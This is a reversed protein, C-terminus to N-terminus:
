EEETAETTAEEGGNPQSVEVLSHPAWITGHTVKVGPRMAQQRRMQKEMRNRNQTMQWQRMRHEHSGIMRARKNLEEELMSIRLANSCDLPLPPTVVPLVLGDAGTYMWMAASTCLSDPEAAATAAGGNLTIKIPTWTTPPEDIGPTQNNSSVNFESSSEGSVLQSLKEDAEDASAVLDTTQQSSTHGSAGNKSGNEDTGEDEDNGEDDEEEEDGTDELGYLEPMRLWGGGVGGGVMQELYRKRDLFSLLEDEHEQQEEDNAGREAGDLQIRPSNSKNAWELSDAEEEEEEEQEEEEFDECQEAHEAESGELLSVARGAHGDTQVLASLAMRFSCVGHEPQFVGEEAQAVIRQARFIWERPIPVASGDGEAASNEEGQAGDADGVMAPGGRERAQEETDEPGDTPTASNTGEEDGPPAGWATPSSQLNSRHGALREPTNVKAAQHAPAKEPSSEQEEGEEASDGGAGAGIQDDGDDELASAAATTMAAQAEMMRNNAAFKQLCRMACAHEEALAEYKGDINQCLQQLQAVEEDRASVTTELGGITATLKALVANMHRWWDSETAEPPPPADSSASAAAPRVLETISDHQQVLASNHLRLAAVLRQLRDCDAELSTNRAQLAKQEELLAAIRGRNEASSQNGQGDLRGAGAGGPNSRVRQGRVEPLSQSRGVAAGANPGGGASRRKRGGLAASKRRGAKRIRQPSQKQGGGSAAAAAAAGKPGDGAREPGGGATRISAAAQPLPKLQQKTRGAGAAPTKSRGGRVAHTNTDLPGLARLGAASPIPVARSM